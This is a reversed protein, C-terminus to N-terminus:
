PEMLVSSPSIFNCNQWLLRQTSHRPVLVHKWNWCSIIPEQLWGFTHVWDVGSCVHGINCAWKQHWMWTVDTLMMEMRKM